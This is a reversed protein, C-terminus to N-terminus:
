PTVRAIPRITAEMRLQGKQEPPSQLLENLKSHLVYITGDRLVATTPYVDGLQQVATLKASVWEDDSTLSYAANSATDPTRNAILVLYKKGVLTVGDGGVFRENITVKSFQDPRALPVKIFSM